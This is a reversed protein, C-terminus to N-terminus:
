NKIVKQAYVKNEKGTIKLIYIGQPIDAVDLAKSTVNNWQKVVTGLENVLQVANVQENFVQLQLFNNFPNPGVTIKRNTEKITTNSLQQDSNAKQATSSSSVPSCYAQWTGNRDDHWIPYAKGGYATIGIYDGAYGEAFYDNNISATIHSVDSVKQNEWTAGGNSSYAVYTNTAYPAPRDFTNYVVWVEGTADDVTIWPFFNQKGNPISVTKPQSWNQGENDSYRVQVIAKGVHNQKTPYTVYIRGRHPGTSKDVAMAPFDAVRTYNFTPNDSFTRIGDYKFVVKYPKFSVGGNNSSTFGLGDAQYPYEVVSHDAWCVYVQGDPGTQVNTGQGFGAIATRIIVPSSFTKGEDTSRNFLVEGNGISFDTWAAYFNNAHPSAKSNDAAIMLKDFGLTYYQDGRAEKPRSWNAGGDRSIQFLYGYSFDFNSFDITTLMAHGNATFATSPDGLVIQNKTYQLFDAGSWTKGGDSSYYYGQNYLIRGKDIGLLTNASAVLNDPNTKNISIHDESQINASPHVRVDPADTLSSTSPSAKTTVSPKFTPTFNQVNVKTKNDRKTQWSLLLDKQASLTQSLLKQSFFVITICLCLKALYTRM